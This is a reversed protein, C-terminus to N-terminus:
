NGLENIIGILKLSVRSHFPVPLAPSDVINTVRFYKGNLVVCFCDIFPTPDLVYIEQDQLEVEGIVSMLRETGDGIDAVIEIDDSTWLLALADISVRANVNDLICDYAASYSYGQPLWEAYPDVVEATPNSQNLRAREFTAIANISM